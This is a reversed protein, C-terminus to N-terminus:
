PADVISWKITTKLHKEPTLVDENDIKVVLGEDRNMIIDEDIFGERNKYEYDLVLTESSLSELEGTKANKFYLMKSLQSDQDPTSVFLRWNKKSESDRTDKINIKLSDEKRYVIKEKQGIRYNLFDIEAPFTLEFEGQDVIFDITMEWEHSLGEITKETIIVKGQSKGAKNVKPYKSFKFSFNELRESESFINELKIDLEEETMFLSLHTNQTKLTNVRLSHIQGERIQFFQTQGIGKDFPVILENQYLEMKDLISPEDVDIQIIDGEQIGKNNPTAFLNEIADQLAYVGEDATVSIFTKSESLGLVQNAKRPYYSITFDNGIKEDMIINNKGYAPIIGKDKFYNLSLIDRGDKNSVTVGEGIRLDWFIPFTHAKVDMSMRKDTFMISAQEERKVSKWLNSGYVNWNDPILYNTYIESPGKDVTKLVHNKLYDEINELEIPEGIIGKYPKQDSFLKYVYVDVEILKKHRNNKMDESNLHKGQIEIVAKVLGDKSTPPESVYFAGKIESSITEFFNDTISPNLAKYINETYVSVSPIEDKVRVLLEPYEEWKIDVNDYYPGIKVDISNATNESWGGLWTKNFAKFNYHMNFKVRVERKTEVEVYRTMKVIGSDSITLGVSNDHIVEFGYLSLSGSYKVKDDGLALRDSINLKYPINFTRTDGEKLGLKQAEEDLNTALDVRLKDVDKKITEQISVWYASEAHAVPSDVFICIAVIMITGLIYKVKRM